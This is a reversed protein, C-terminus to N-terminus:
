EVAPTCIGRRAGAGLCRHYGAAGGLETASCRQAGRRASESAGGGLATRVSSRPDISEKRRKTKNEQVGYESRTSIRSDMSFGATFGMATFTTSSHKTM